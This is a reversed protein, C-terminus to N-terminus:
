GNLRTIAGSLVTAFCTWAAYAGLAAGRTRGTRGARRALDISSAALVGAGAAGMWPRRARFFLGSWGANLVLNVALARRFDRAEDRRGSTELDHLTGAAASTILAYLSTWVIPFVANPPNWSPKRLSRYWEGDPETLLGGVTATGVVAAGVGALTRIRSPSRSEDSPQIRKDNM